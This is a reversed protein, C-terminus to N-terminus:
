LTGDAVMSLAEKTGRIKPAAGSRNQSPFDCSESDLILIPQHQHVRWADDVDVIVPSVRFRVRIPGRSEHMGDPTSTAHGRALSMSGVPGTDGSLMTCPAHHM